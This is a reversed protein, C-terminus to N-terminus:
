TRPAPQRSGSTDLSLRWPSGTCSTRRRRQQPRCRPSHATRAPATVPRALWSWCLCSLWGSGWLSWSGGTWSTKPSCSPMPPWPNWRRLCRPVAPPHLSYCGPPPRPSTPARPALPHPGRSGGPTPRSLPRPPPPPPPPPPSPSPSPPCRAM